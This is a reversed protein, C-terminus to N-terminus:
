LKKESTKPPTQLTKTSHKFKSPEEKTKIIDRKHKFKLDEEARYAPAAYGHSKILSGSAVSPSCSLLLPIGCGGIKANPFVGVASGGGGASLSLGSGYGLGAGYSRATDHHKWQFLKNDMASKEAFERINTQISPNMLSDEEASKGNHLAGGHHKHGGIILPKNFSLELPAPKHVHHPGPGHTHGVAHAHASAHAHAHAHAQDHGLEHASRLQDMHLDDVLDTSKGLQSMDDNLAVPGNINIDSAFAANDSSKMDSHISDEASKGHHLGGHHGGHHLLGGHHPHSVILPGTSHINHLGHGHALAHAAAHAHAHAHAHALEHHAHRLKDNDDWLDASKGLTTKENKLDALGKLSIDSSLEANDALKMNSQVTLGSKQIFEADNDFHKNQEVSKPIAVNLNANLAIKKHEASKMMPEKNETETWASKEQKMLEDTSKTDWESTRLTSEKDNIKHGSGAIETKLSMSTAHPQEMRLGPQSTRLSTGLEVSKGKTLEVHGSHQLSLPQSEINLSIEALKGKSAQTNHTAQHFQDHKMPTVESAATKMDHAIHDSKTEMTKQNMNDSARSSTLSKTTDKHFHSSHEQNNSRMLHSTDVPPFNSDSRFSDEINRAIDVNRQINEMAEKWQSLREEELKGKNMDGLTTARLSMSELNGFNTQMHRSSHKIGAANEHVNKPSVKHKWQANKASPSHEINRLDHQLSEVAEKAIKISEEVNDKHADIDEIKTSRRLDASKAVNEDCVKVRLHQSCREHPEANAREETSDRYLHYGSKKKVIIPRKQGFHSRASVGPDTIESDFNLPINEPTDLTQFGDEQLAPAAIAICVLASLVVLTKM